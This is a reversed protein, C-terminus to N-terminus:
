WFVKPKSFQVNIKTWKKLGRASKHLIKQWKRGETIEWIKLVKQNFIAFHENQNNKRFSIFSL